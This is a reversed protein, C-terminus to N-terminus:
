MQRQLYRRLAAARRVDNLKRAEIKVHGRDRLQEVEQDTIQRTGRFDRKLVYFYLDGYKESLLELIKGTQAQADRFEPCLTILITHKERPDINELFKVLGIPRDDNSM